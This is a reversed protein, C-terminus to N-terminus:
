LLLTNLGSSFGDDPLGRLSAGETIVPPAPLAPLSRVRDRCNYGFPPYAEKWFPDTARLVKGHALAHFQRQRGDQVGLIQWYPRLELVEPQTMQRARGSNYAGLVNTRFVTEVHSGNAPTWGAAKFREAAHRGFDSLDAGVALQRLLERKVTRVMEENAANAVTFARQQAAAQMQDFVDRTVPEKELFARIADALPRAAFRTDVGILTRVDLHLAAFSEVEIPREEEAEWTADMAGLMAGHMIERHIPEELKATGFRGAAGDIASRIASASTKGSVAKVIADALSATVSLLGDVGREVMVDPSGFVSSPQAAALTVRTGEPCTGGLAADVWGAWASTREAELRLTDIAQARLSPAPLPAKKIPRWKIIWKAQGGELEVDREREIGCWTCLNKRGHECADISLENMKDCLAQIADPEDSDAAVDNAPPLAPPPLAGPPLAGGPPPMAPPPQGGGGGPTNFADTPQPELEGPQPAGNVPYVIEPAAPPQLQGFGVPRLVKQLYPEGPELEQVGMKERAERLPVKLGVDLALKLRNGEEERSIPAETRIIFHPAHSVEQPGFNVAIIADTIMDEITEALRRADSWIVLDEESLHANGISSGLGTSVADTTGTSGLVLKSQVKESHEIISGSVQGAGTFPQVIDLDWGAPLRAANHYGLKQITEWASLMSTDNTTLMANPGSAPKLIRWPRGFLEQLMNRERVSARGFYSWYLTRIALGEREPYDNWLRPKYTVFKYARSPHELEYGTDRFDGQEFRTDIVRLDRHQGFSLRRPHIWNLGILNWQRWYFRWDLENAARGDYVGWALSIIADRFRPLSEIQARVFAAYDEAKRKDIGDGSAPHLDWDLAALRNIRKNLVASLHGDYQLQERSIDTIPSMRGHEAARLGRDIRLLDLDKGYHPRENESRPVREGFLQQPLITHNVPLTPLASTALM